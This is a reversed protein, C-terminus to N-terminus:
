KPKEQSCLWLIVILLMGSLASNPVHSSHSNTTSIGPTIAGLSKMDRLDALLGDAEFSKDIVTNKSVPIKPVWNYQTISGEAEKESFLNRTKYPTLSFKWLLAGASFFHPKSPVGVRICAGNIIIGFDTTDSM